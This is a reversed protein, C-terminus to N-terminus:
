FTYARLELTDSTAINGKFQRVQVITDLTIKRLQPIAQKLNVTFNGQSDTSVFHYVYRWSPNKASQVTVQLMYGPRAIGKIETAGSVLTYVTPAEVKKPTPKPTPTVYTYTSRCPRWCWCWCASVTQAGVEAAVGLLAAIIALRVVLKKVSKKM